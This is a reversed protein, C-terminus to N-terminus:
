LVKTSFWKNFKIDIQVFDGPVMYPVQLQGFDMYFSGKKVVKQGRRLPGPGEWYRLRAYPEMILGDVLYHGSGEFLTNWFSRLIM